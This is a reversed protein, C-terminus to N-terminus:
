LRGIEAEECSHGLQSLGEELYDSLLPIGTLMEVPRRNLVDRAAALAEPWEEVSFDGRGLWTLAVVEILQDQNLSRLASVLEDYTPDDAYDGLIEGSGSDTPNSGPNPEVPEVKVDFERAKIILYCAMETDISLEITDKIAIAM